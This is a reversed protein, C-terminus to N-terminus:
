PKLRQTAKTVGTFTHPETVSLSIGYAAPPTVTFSVSFSVGIGNGGTITVNESYTGATGGAATLGTKPGLTFTHSEGAPIGAITGGTLTFSSAAGGSLSATLGGTAQNGTNKVTVTFPDVAGYGESAATFVLGATATVANGNVSVSIGYRDQEGNLPNDCAAFALVLAAATVASFIRKM